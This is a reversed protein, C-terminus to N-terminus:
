RQIYPHIHTHIYTHMYTSGIILLTAHKKDSNKNGSYIHIYIYTHMHAIEQTYVYVCVCVCICVCLISYYRCYMPRHGLVIIWPAETRNANANQLDMELWDYQREVMTPYFFYIETSIMVYHVQIYTHIYTHIYTRTYIKTGNQSLLFISRNLDNCLPGTHTHTHIYTHICTHTNKSIMVYHFQKYTHIYTHIYAHTNKYQREVMTPYFFYVETSIM